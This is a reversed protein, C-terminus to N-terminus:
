VLPDVRDAVGGYSALSAPHRGNQCTTAAGQETVTIRGRKPPHGVVRATVDLHNHQASPPSSPGSDSDVARTPQVGVIAGSMAAGRHRARRPREYVQGGDHGWPM